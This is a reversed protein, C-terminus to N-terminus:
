GAAAAPRLNVPFRFIHVLWPPFLGLSRRLFPSPPLPCVCDQSNGLPHPCEFLRRSFVEGSLPASGATRGAGPQFGALHACVEGKGSPTQPGIKCLRGWGRKGLALVGSRAVEGRAGGGVGLLSVCLRLGLAWAFRSSCGRGRAMQAPLRQAGSPERGPRQVIYAGGGPTGGLGAEQTSRSSGWLSRPTPRRRWSIVHKEGEGSGGGRSTTGPHRCGGGKRDWRTSM